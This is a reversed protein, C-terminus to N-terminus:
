IYPTGIVCQRQDMSKVLKFLPLDIPSGGNRQNLAASFIITKLTGRLYYRTNILKIGHYYNSSFKM